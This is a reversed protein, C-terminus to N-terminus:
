PTWSHSPTDARVKATTSVVIEAGSACSAMTGM